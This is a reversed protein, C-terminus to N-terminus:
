HRRTYRKKKRYLYRRSKRRSGGKLPKRIVLSPKTLEEVVEL